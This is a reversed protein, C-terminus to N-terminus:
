SQVEPHERFNRADCRGCRDLRRAPFQSQMICDRRAAEVAPWQFASQTECEPLRGYVRLQPPIRRAWPLHRDASVFVGGGGNRHKQRKRWLSVRHRQLGVSVLDSTARRHLPRRVPVVDDGAFRHGSRHCSFQIVHGAGDDFSGRSLFTAAAAGGDIQGFRHQSNFKSLCCRLQCAAARQPRWAHSRCRSRFWHGRNQM